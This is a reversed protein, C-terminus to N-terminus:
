LPHVVGVSFSFSFTRNQPTKWFQVLTRSILQYDRSFQGSPIETKTIVTVQELLGEVVKDNPDSVKEKEPEDIPVLDPLSDASSIPEDEGVGDPPQVSIPPVYGPDCKMTMINEAQQIKEKQKEIIKQKQTMSVIERLNRNKRKRVEERVSEENQRIVEKKVILQNWNVDKQLSTEVVSCSAENPTDLIALPLVPCPTTPPLTPCQTPPPPITKVNKKGFMKKPVYNIKQPVKYVPIEVTEDSEDWKIVMSSGNAETKLDGSDGFDIKPEHEDKKVVPVELKQVKSSNQLKEEYKRKEAQAKQAREKRKEEMMKKWDTGPAM